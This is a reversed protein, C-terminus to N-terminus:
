LKGIELTCFTGHKGKPICTSFLYIKRNKLCNQYIHKQKAVCLKYTSSENTKSSNKKYKKLCLDL